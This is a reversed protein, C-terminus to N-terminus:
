KGELAARGAPTITYHIPQTDVPDGSDAWRQVGDPGVFWNRVGMGQPGLELTFGFGRLPKTNDSM